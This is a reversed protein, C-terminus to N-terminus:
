NSDDDLIYNGLKDMKMNEIGKRAIEEDIRRALEDQEDESDPDDSGDDDSEEGTESYAGDYEVEDDDSAGTISTQQSEEDNIESEQTERSQAMAKEFESVEKRNYGSAELLIDLNKERTVKEWKPWTSSTYNFKSKFFHRISDVDREFYRQADPHSISVCQPFDIVVPEATDNRIMINFENFDGHILGYNALREIFEMLTKYLKGPEAHDTLQRMPYGDVLSMVIHHRSQDVPQPVAFGEYYLARMFAYEKEAAIRSLFMWSASKGNRLYDRNNKVTRFSIRGLRHIKLALKQRKDEVKGAVVFIDSEKGIGIQRGVALVSERKSLAKLALYDYGGYTLRYGAYKANRIKAILKIKALESISKNVASISRLQSNQAILSEPVLEHSASGVEVSTLVKFDENTLYRLHSTDLKMKSDTLPFKPVSLFHAVGFTPSM